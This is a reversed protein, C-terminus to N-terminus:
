EKVLVARIETGDNLEGEWVVPQAACGSITLLTLLAFIKYM